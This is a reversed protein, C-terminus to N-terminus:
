EVKILTNWLPCKPNSKVWDSICQSHYFHRENCPLLTIQSDEDFVDMCIIWFEDPDLQTRDMKWSQEKLVADCAKQKDHKTKYDSYKSVISQIVITWILMVVIYTLKWFFWVAELFMIVQILWLCFANNRWDNNWDISPLTDTIITNSNKAYLVLKWFIWSKLIILLFWGASFISVSATILELQRFNLSRKSTIVLLAITCPLVVTGKIVLCLIVFTRGGISCDSERNVLYLLMLFSFLALQYMLGKWISQSIQRMRQFEVVGSERRYNITNLDIDM